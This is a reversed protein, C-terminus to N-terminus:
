SREVLEILTGDPDQIFAITTHENFQYPEDTVKVGAKKMASLTKHIDPVDFGLHDFLRNEFEAQEFQTQNRYHTLELTCGKGEADQLFAIEAKNDKLTARRKVQLGFHKQYFETSRKMNSTRISVHLFLGTLGNEATKVTLSPSKTQRPKKAEEDLTKNVLADAMSIKPHERPVNIFSVKEFGGLLGKVQVFLKHLTENKVAYQGKLQKAVLESDLHCVVEPVKLELAYQLAILLANYEAQNNTHIGLYRSDTKLTIGAENTAIFAAAAPGPNGRAGGDSYLILKKIMNEAEL